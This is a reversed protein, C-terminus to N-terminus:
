RKVANNDAGTPGGHAVAYNSTLYGSALNAVRTLMMGDAVGVALGASFAGARQFFEPTAIVKGTNDRINLRLLVGSSGAMPGFMVRSAGSTLELQEVLPEVVLTRGNDPGSNWEVLKEALDKKLNAEIREVGKEKGSVGPAFAAPKVEIRGFNKFAEAPPPNVLNSSKVRTACGQTLALAALGAGLLITRRSLKM